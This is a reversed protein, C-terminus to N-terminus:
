ERYEKKIINVMYEGMFVFFAAMVQFFFVIKWDQIFTLYVEFVATKFLSIDFLTAGLKSITLM